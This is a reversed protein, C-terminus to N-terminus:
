LEVGYLNGSETRLLIKNGNEGKSLEVSKIAEKTPAHLYKYNEAIWDANFRLASVKCNDGDSICKWVVPNNTNTNLEVKKSYGGAKRLAADVKENGVSSEYNYVEMLKGENDLVSLYPFEFLLKVKRAAIKGFFESNYFSPFEYRLNNHVIYKNLDASGIEILKTLQIVSLDIKETASVYRASVECGSGDQSCDLKDNVWKYARKKTELTAGKVRKDLSNVSVQENQSNTQNTKVEEKQCSLVFIGATLATAGFIISKKM